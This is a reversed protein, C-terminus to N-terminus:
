SMPLGFRSAVIVIAAVSIEVCFGRSNSLRTMQVGLGQMVRWGVARLPPPPPSHCPLPQSHHICRRTQRTPACALWSGRTCAWCSPQLGLLGDPPECTALGLVMGFGGIALIWTPVTPKSSVATDQPRHHTHPAALPHTSSAILLSIAWASCASACGAAVEAGGALRVQWIQYIAALAGVSNAVENSGHAFIGACATFIQHETHARM